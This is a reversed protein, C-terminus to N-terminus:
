LILRNEAEEEDVEVEAEEFTSGAAMKKLLREERVSECALAATELEQHHIRGLEARAAMQINMNNNNRDKKIYRYSQLNHDDYTTTHVRDIDNNQIMMQILKKFFNRSVKPSRENLLYRIIKGYLAAYPIGDLHEERRYWDDVTNLAILVLLHSETFRGYERDYDDDLNM